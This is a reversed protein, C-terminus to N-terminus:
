YERFRAQKRRAEQLRRIHQISKLIETNTSVPSKPQSINESAPCKNPEQMNLELQVEEAAALYAEREKRKAVFRDVKDPKM